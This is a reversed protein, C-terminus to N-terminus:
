LPNGNGEGRYRGSKPISGTDGANSPLNKVESVAPFGLNLNGKSQTLHGLTCINPLKM